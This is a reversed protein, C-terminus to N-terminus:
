FTPIDTLVWELSPKSVKVVEDSNGAEKSMKFEVEITILPCSRLVYKSRQQDLTTVRALLADVDKRTMGPQVLEVEKLSESLWELYNWKPAREASPKLLKLIEPKKEPPEVVFYDHTAVMIPGWYPALVKDAIYINKTGITAKRLEEINSFAGTGLVFVPQKPRWDSPSLVEEVRVQFLNMDNIGRTVERLQEGRFERFDRDIPIVKEVVGVFVYDADEVLTKLPPKERPQHASSCKVSAALLSWMLFIAFHFPRMILVRAYVIRL